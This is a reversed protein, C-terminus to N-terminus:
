LVFYFVFYTFFSLIKVWIEKGTCACKYTYRYIENNIQLKLHKKHTFVDYLLKMSNEEREHKYGRFGSDLFEM